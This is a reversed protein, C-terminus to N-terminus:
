IAAQVEAVIAEELDSPPPAAGAPTREDWALPEVRPLVLGWGVAGITGIAATLLFAWEFSGTRDVIWGTIVPGAIGATNAIANQIGVWRAAARPGALTQAISWVSPGIAGGCFGALLLCVIVVSRSGSACGILALANGLHGFIVVAKRVFTPSRGASILRDSLWGFSVASVGQVCYVVAGLQAMGVLSFGREQVLWLPLWSLMFYLSYNAAFHGICGGWLARRKLLAAYRPPQTRALHSRAPAQKAVAFWPILWFLAVSGFVIFMARWGFSAAIM